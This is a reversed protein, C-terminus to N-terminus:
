NNTVQRLEEDSEEPSINIFPKKQQTIFITISIWGLWFLYVGLHFREGLWRHSLTHRFDSYSLYLGIIAILLSVAQVINSTKKTLKNFFYTQILLLVTWVIFVLLAGKWWSKLFRYQTYFLSIGARGVLSISSLLYGAILAFVALLFVLIHNSKM